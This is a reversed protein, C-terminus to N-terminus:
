KKEEDDSEEDADDSSTADAEEAEKAAAAEAREKEELQGKLDALGSVEGLTLADPTSSSKKKKSSGKSSSGGSSKGSGGKQVKGIKKQSVEISKSSEDCETVVVKIEDGESFAEKFDDGEFEAENKHMFAEAGKGLDVFIGKDTIKSVKGTTETAKAFEKLYTEWPNTEVQKHGLTIRRNDFDVALIIVELDQGKDVVDGPHNIKDTWSLDSIHVLGDIGPELEVFVGFNTLNRVKGTHKSDIPYRDLLNDWPDNELQKVGLSIKKEEKNINLVVCEIIQNREVLQSPHKIHQTWSMESIHVLGEVGRELEIFAGYDAISVVRGQVKNNEPFKDNIADWPHPQLQKLGLSIRKTEEDFELVVVNLKQDLQVIESPHEVRGWSLDTIHLLGDVGGLDIFVGFDTINKVHGELIQGPEMTALIEARQEELDSEVIARHSVVVNESSMNLKVVMFEMTKGVYADFDRVPRVDIQSGPLFADIGEIDVVMGGKIRRKIYGELITENEYSDEIFQWTRLTNAKKRSLILQGERDEVRDLFVEVENGLELEEPKRFENVQIIGESKFGIDVIVYKEDIGVITGTVIEKESIKSLTGEYMGVLQNYESDDYDESARQLQDYTYVRDAEIEGNYVPIPAEEVVEEMSMDEVEEPSPTESEEETSTEEETETETDTDAAVAKEETEPKVEETTEEAKVAEDKVEEQEKTEENAM